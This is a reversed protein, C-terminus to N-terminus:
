SAVRLWVHARGLPDGGQCVVVTKEGDPTFTVTNVPTDYRGDVNPRVGSHPLFGLIRDIPYEVAINGRGENDLPMEIHVPQVQVDVELPTGLIPPPDLKVPSPSGAWDWWSSRDDRHSDSTSVHGHKTHPNSGSYPRWGESARAASWIQRNSIAYKIRPDRRSVAARILAHADCGHLPDHTLDFAECYGDRDPDNHDSTSAHNADACIGDSARVRNPWRATASDLAARCVPAVKPM